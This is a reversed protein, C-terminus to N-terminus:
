RFYGMRIIGNIPYRFSEIRVQMDNFDNKFVLLWAISLSIIRLILADKAM